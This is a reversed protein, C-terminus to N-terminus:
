KINAIFNQPETKTMLKIEHEENDNYKITVVYCININEKTYDETLNNILKYAGYGALTAGFLSVSLLLNATEINEESIQYNMSVDTTYTINQINSIPIAKKNVQENSKYELTLNDNDKKLLIVENYPIEKIGLLINCILFSNPDINKLEEPTENSNINNENNSSIFISIVLILAAVIYLYFCPYLKYELLGNLSNLVGYLKIFTIAYGIFSIIYAILNAIKKKTSSGYILLIGGLIVPYAGIIDLTNFSLRIIGDQMFDIFKNFGCFVVLVFYIIAVILKYYSKDKKM